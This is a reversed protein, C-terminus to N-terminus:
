CAQQRYYLETVLESNQLKFPRDEGGLTETHQIHHSGRRISARELVQLSVRWNLAM